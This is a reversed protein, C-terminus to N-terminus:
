NMGNNLYESECLHEGQLKGGSRLSLGMGAMCRIANRSQSRRRLRHWNKRGKQLTKAGILTSASVAQWNTRGGWYTLIQITYLLVLATAGSVGPYLGIYEYDGDSDISCHAIGAKLSSTLLAASVDYCCVTVPLSALRVPLVFVDGAEAFFTTGDIPNGDADKDPDIDSKGLRYTSSGQIIGYCEHANSHFHVKKFTKWQGGKLWGNPEITTVINSPSTDKLAGRYVVVPLCSNPVHPTPKVFFTEPEVVDAPM